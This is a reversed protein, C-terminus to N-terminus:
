PRPRSSFHDAFQKRAEPSIKALAEATGGHLRTQIAAQKQRLEGMAALFGQKDFPEARVAENARQRLQRFAQQDRRVEARFPEM